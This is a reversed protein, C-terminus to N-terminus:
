WYLQARFEVISPDDKLFNNVTKNNWAPDQSYTAGTKGVYKESQAKVYNLSFKFYSRWYWNVGVTWNSEKGGLVGSTTPTPTSFNVSGDNLDVHDYRAALQWMGKTPESPLGTVVVGDKYTWTEGTLNYVGSVYWSDFDYDDHASRSVNTRMYESQLKFPGHVWAAEAGTTRIREADTFQGSDVLFAATRDADPRVRFRARNDGSFVPTSGQASGADRAEYDVMSLGLHLYNGADLMPAWTGRLGWGNGNALNRSLERSFASGTITWNDAGTGVAIGTRRAVGQLNTTM